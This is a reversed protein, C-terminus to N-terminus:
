PERGTATHPRAISGAGSPHEPSPVDKGVGASILPKEEKKKKTLSGISETIGQGAENQLHTTNIALLFGECLPLMLTLSAGNLLLM